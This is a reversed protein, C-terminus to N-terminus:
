RRVVALGGLTRILTPKNAPRVVSRGDSLLFQCLDAGVPLETLGQELRRLNDEVRALLSEATKVDKTKLSRSYRQGAFRFVIRYSDTRLQIAAMDHNEPAMCRSWRRWGLAFGINVGFHCWKVELDLFRFFSM